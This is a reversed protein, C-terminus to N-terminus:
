SGSLIDRLVEYFRERGYREKWPHHGCRAIPIYAFDSIVKRLSDDVHKADHDGQILTVQCAISRGTELLRGSSRLIAAESWVRAFIEPQGPLDVHPMEDEESAPLRCYTDAKDYLRGFEAFVADKNEMRPGNLLRELEILRKREAKSLRSLRTQKMEEVYKQEFPGSSILVLKKVYAPYRATFLYALWAGWSWGVLHVPWSASEGLQAHLEAIQGDVSDKTQFPELVGFDMSLEKAVPAVEGPAGPGGHLIAV